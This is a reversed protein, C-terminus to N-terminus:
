GKKLEYFKIDDNEMVVLFVNLNNKVVWDKLEQIKQISLTQGSHTVIRSPPVKVFYCMHPKFEMVSSMPILEELEAVIPRKKDLKKM